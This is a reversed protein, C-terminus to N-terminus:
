KLAIVDFMKSRIFKRVVRINFFLVNIVNQYFVFNLQVFIFDYVIKNFIHKINIINNNIIRQLKLM